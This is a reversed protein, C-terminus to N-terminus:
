NDPTGRYDKPKHERFGYDGTLDGERLIQYAPDGKNVGVERPTPEGTEGGQAIAYRGGVPHPYYMTEVGPKKEEDVLGSAELPPLVEKDLRKLSLPRHFMQYYRKLIDRKTIGNTFEAICAGFIEYVQPALGLENAEAIERYLIDAEVYDDVSAEIRGERPQRARWNLLARAKVLSLFRDLDRIHRPIPNPHTAEWDALIKDRLERPIIVDTIGSNKVDLVRKILYQRTLSSSLRERYADRDAKKELLLGWAEKVKLPDTEPSLQWTRTREQQDLNFNATCFNVSAYGELIVTKTRLGSKQSRDAIKYKIRKQDHSLFPRLKELLLAHPQDLFVLIKNALKVIHQKKEPDWIAFEGGSVEHFFSTPSAGGLVVVDNTPFYASIELPLYSKGSSSEAAMLLNIQEESTYALLNGAFLIKGTARDRKVTIALIDAVTDFSIEKALEPIEEPKPTWAPTKTEAPPKVLGKEIAISYTRTFAKGRLGGPIAESCDIIGEQVALLSIAGGGSCCRFCYWEGTSLNVHFNTGTTSGHTPHPGFFEEGRQKLGAGVLLDRINLETEIRQEKAEGREAKLTLGAMFPALVELMKEETLAAVPRDDVIEYKNGNPHTSGPGVVQSGGWKAHGINWDDRKRTKDMLPYTQSLKGNYFFHKTHHGPSRQTFTPPLSREILAELEATDTELIIHDPGALVGYNGGRALHDLLKPDDYAYGHEQWKTEYPDKGRPPLLVFRWDKLQEPIETM